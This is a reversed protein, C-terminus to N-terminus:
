FALAEPDIILFKVPWAATEHIALPLGWHIGCALVIESPSVKDQLFTVSGM